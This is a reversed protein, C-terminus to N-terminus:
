QIKEPTESIDQVYEIFAKATESLPHNKKWVLVYEINRKPATIVKVITADSYDRRTYPFISIGVGARSLAVSDLWSSTSCLFNPEAKIERFWARLSERRSRRAPVILPEGALEALTVENGERRALPHDGPIIAAWPESGAPLTELKETDCPLAIIAADALGKLVRETVDDSSGNWLDYKVNPFEERFGNIWEAAIDPACGEVTGLYLTGSIGNKMEAIESKARDELEILERARRLLVSGEDTLTLRRKGRIFLPAGLEEELQQLQHSLPPQSMNLREAAATINLEEAIVVFYKLSRLEM